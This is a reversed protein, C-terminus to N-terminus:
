AMQFAIPDLFEPDFRDLSLISDLSNVGEPVGGHCSFIGNSSIGALPLVEFMSRYSDFLNSSYRGKVANYFGYTRAVRESEHNGRLLTIRKPYEIALAMVLNVTEVQQPGRDAYDGLFVLSDENKALFMDRITELSHLDGHLDGVYYVNRRPTEVVNPHNRYEDCFSSILHIIEDQTLDTRGEIVQKALQM